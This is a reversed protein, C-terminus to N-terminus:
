SCESKDFHKFNASLFYYECNLSRKNREVYSTLFPSNQVNNDGFADFNNQLVSDVDLSNARFIFDRPNKIDARNRVWLGKNVVNNRDLM